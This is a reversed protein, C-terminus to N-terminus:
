SGILHILKSTIDAVASANAVGRARRAQARAICSIATKEANTTLNVAGEHGLINSSAVSEDAAINSGSIAIDNGAIGMTMATHSVATAVINSVDATSVSIQRNVKAAQLSARAASLASRLTEVAMEAAIVNRKGDVIAERSGAENVKQTMIQQEIPISAIIAASLILAEVAKAIVKTLVENKKDILLGKEDVLSEMTVSNAQEQILVKEESALIADLYPIIELKKNATVVQADVLAGENAFTLRDTEALQRKLGEMELDITTKTTILIIRRIDLEVFLRDLEEKKLSQTADLDAFEQQLATLLTQKELEFAIRATKYAQTYDHGTQKLEREISEAVIQYNLASLKNKGTEELTLSAEYLFGPIKCFSRSAVTSLLARHSGSFEDLVKGKEKFWQSSEAIEGM